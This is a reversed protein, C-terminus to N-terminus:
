WEVSKCMRTYLERRQDTFARRGHLIRTNDIMVIDGSQWSILQTLRATVDKIELIVEDPIKLGDELRVISTKKGSSEQWEVPLINNIFVEQGGWRSKIVAPHIYETSISQTKRDIKLSLDNEKCFKEVVSLDNTQYREQWEGNAYSRLYRLRKTKFLEKTEERLQKYVQVGDCVTTEGDESAPTICYFWIVTPRNKLYYMEGHIPLGFTKQQTGGANYTVSLVTRDGDENITKRIYGGGAYTLFETGFLNSFEQFKELDVDFGRFHLLGSTKFFNIIKGTDLELINSNDTAIVRTGFGEFIPETKM